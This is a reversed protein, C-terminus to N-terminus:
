WSELISVTTMHQGELAEIENPTEVAWEASWTVVGGENRRM